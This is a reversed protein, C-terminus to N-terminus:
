TNFTPLKPLFTPLEETRSINFKETHLVIKKSSSFIKLVVTKTADSNIAKPFLVFVWSPRPERLYILFKFVSGSFYVKPFKDLLWILDIISMVALHCIFQYNQQLISAHVSQLHPLWLFVVHSTETAVSLKAFKYKTYRYIYFKLM